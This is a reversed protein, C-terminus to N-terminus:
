FGARGAIHARNRLYIPRLEPEGYGRAAALGIMEALASGADVIPIAQLELKSLRPVLDSHAFLTDTHRDLLTAIFDEESGVEPSGGSEPAESGPAYSQWAIDKKGVPVLCTLNRSRDGFLAMADLAAMGVCPIDLSRRLGMATAIGIRIGSYSGPGTSVVIMDLDEKGIAAASLTKDIVVLLEEARSPSVEQEVTSAIVSRDRLVAVSGRGVACEISLISNAINTQTV